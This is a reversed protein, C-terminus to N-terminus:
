FSPKSHARHFIFGGCHARFSSVASPWARFPQSFLGLLKLLFIMVLFFVCSLCYSADESPSYCLWPFLLQWEYKLSRITEPFLFNKQPAKERYTLVDYKSKYICSSHVPGNSLAGDELPLPDETKFSYKVDAGIPKSFVKSLSSSYSKDNSNVNRSTNIQSVTSLFSKSTTDSYSM